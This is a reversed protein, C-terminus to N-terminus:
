PLPPMPVPIPPKSGFTPADPLGPVPHLVEKTERPPPRSAKLPSRDPPSITNLSDAYFLQGRAPTGGVNSFGSRLPADTWRLDQSVHLTAAPPDSSAELWESSEQGKPSAEVGSTNAVARDTRKGFQVPTKP